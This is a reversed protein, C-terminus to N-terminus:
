PHRATAPVLRLLLGSASSRVKQGGGKGDGRLVAEAGPGGGDAGGSKHDADEAFQGARDPQRGFVIMVM